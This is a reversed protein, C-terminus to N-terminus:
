GVARQPTRVVARLLRGDESAVFRRSELWRQVADRDPHTARIQNYMYRVGSEFAEGELRDMIWSGIGRKQASPDVVLLIEADGWIIDMWGYGVIAGDDEARWWDGPLLSGLRRDSLRPDFIGAPVGGLIRAKDRDWLAPSEHIWKRNM